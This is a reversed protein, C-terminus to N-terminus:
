RVAIKLAATGGQAGAIRMIYVGSALGAFSATRGAARAVTAGAADCLTLRAGGPLGSVGVTGGSVSIRVGDLPMSGIGSPQSVTWSGEFTLGPMAACSMRVDYTGTHEMLYKGGGATVASGDCRVAIEVPSGDAAAMEGSLDLMDGCFLDAPPVYTSVYSGFGSNSRIMLDALWPTVQSFAFSNGSAAVFELPGGSPVKLSTIRNNECALSVLRDLGGADLAALRNMNCNLYRLLPSAELSLSGLMNGYCYLTELQRCAGLDLSEIANNSCDLSWLAPCRSLDLTKIDNGSCDLSGLAGCGDLRLAGCGVNSVTLASLDPMDRVEMLGVSLGDGDFDWGGIELQTVGDCSLALRSEGAPVPVSVASGGDGAACRGADNYVTFGANGSVRLTMDRAANLTLVADGRELSPVGEAYVAEAVTNAQPTFTVSGDAPTYATGGINWASLVYNDVGSPLAAPGSVTVAAGFPYLGAGALPVDERASVTRVTYGYEEIERCRSWQLDSYYLGRSGSPVHLAVAELAGEEPADGMEPAAKDAAVYIDTLAPCGYIAGIYSIDAPLRLVRLSGMRRIGGGVSTLRSCAGLDLEEMRSCGDIGDGVIEELTSPLRLTRLSSHCVSNHGGGTVVVCAPTRYAAPADDDPLVDFSVGYFRRLPTASYDVTELLPCYDPGTAERLSSAHSADFDKLRLMHSISLSELGAPLVLSEVNWGSVSLQRLGGPLEVEAVPGSVGSLVQLGQPLLLTRMRACGTFGAIETLGACASLDAKEVLSGSFSGEAMQSVTSSLRVGTIMPVDKCAVATVGEPVDLQGGLFPCDEIYLSYSGSPLRVACISSNDRLRLSGGTFEADSLDLFHLNPLAAIWDMDSGDVTGSVTLSRVDAARQGMDGVARALTGPTVGDAVTETIGTTVDADGFVGEYDAPNDAIVYPCRFQGQRGFDVKARSKIEIGRLVAGDLVSDAVATVTAPLVLCDKYNPVIGVLRTTEYDYLANDVCRASTSGGPLEIETLHTMGYFADDDVARITEPLIIRTLSSSGYQWKTVSNDGVMTFAHVPIMDAPYDHTPTKGVIWDPVVPSFCGGDRSEEIVAESLDLEQTVSMTAPKMTEFDRADIRGTVKLRTAIYSEPTLRLQGPGPSRLTVVDASAVAAVAAMVAASLACLRGTIFRNMDILNQNYM